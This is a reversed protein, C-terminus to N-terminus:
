PMGPAGDARLLRRANERTIAKEIFDGLESERLKLRAAEFYFLPFCSGFLLREHPVQEILRGIGGVSELFAIDFFVHGAMVLRAAAEGRVDKLANLLVVPLGPHKPLLDILPAADVLPVPMRPHQTREDEMKLAVQVVLGHQKALTLLEAFAPDALTYGHYDPHLRVGPMRHDEACRRLDEQWDPLAPNVCGFPVLLGDGHRQCEEALRANVGGVDRHLLGEFSGAWAQTVGARRLHEVLRPTEDHPLRRFPWRFLSV